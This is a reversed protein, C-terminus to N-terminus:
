GAADFDILASKPTRIIDVKCDKIESLIQTFPVGGNEEQLMEAVRYIRRAGPKQRWPDCLIENVM